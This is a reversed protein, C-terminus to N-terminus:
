MVLGSGGATASGAATSTGSKRQVRLNPTDSYGSSSERATGIAVEQPAAAPPAPAAAPTPTQQSGKNSSPCM